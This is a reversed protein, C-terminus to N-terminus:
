GIMKTGLWLAALALFVSAGVYFVAWLFEQRQLLLMTEIGFASFTTFGGLLGTFLLLRVSPSFFGYKWEMGALVGAIMCGVINVLFTAFPFKWDAIHGLVLGGLKYRAVAGISGGIAVWIVHKMSKELSGEEQGIYTERRDAM